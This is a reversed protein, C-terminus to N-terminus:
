RQGPTYRATREALEPDAETILAWAAALRGALEPEPPGACAAAAALEDIASGLQAAIGPRPEPAAAAKSCMSSTYLPWGQGARRIALDGSRRVHAQWQEATVNSTL